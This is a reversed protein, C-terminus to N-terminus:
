DQINFYITYNEDRFNFLPELIFNQNAGKALFSTPHYQRLGKGSVFSTEQNFSAESGSKCRLKVRSGASMDSHVYCDKNSQSELSATQNSRDLGPVLLFGFLCRWQFFKCHYSTPRTRPSM